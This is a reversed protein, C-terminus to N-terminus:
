HYSLLIDCKTSHRVLDLLCQAGIFTRDTSEDLMTRSLESGHGWTFSGLDWKLFCLRWTTLRFLVAFRKQVTERCSTVNLSALYPKNLYRCTNSHSNETHETSTNTISEMSAMINDFSRAILVLGVYVRQVLAWLMIMLCLYTSGTIM